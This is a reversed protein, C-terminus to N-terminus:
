KKQNFINTLLNKIQSYDKNKPTLVYAKKDGFYITANELFGNIGADLVIKWGNELNLEKSLYYLKELDEKSLNTLINKQATTYIKWANEFDTFMNLGKIKAALANIVEQQRRMRGFDSEATHRTRIYKITTAGDLHQWGAEISFTIIGVGPQPFAPDYIKEPVFINIGGVLDIIEQIGSLNITIFHKADIGSIKEITERLYYEPNAPYNKLGMKWLANIRSVETSQPLSVLLDRPFSTLAFVRQDPKLSLLMISDTLDPAENRPGAVGLFLIDLRENFNPLTPAPSITSAINEGISNKIIQTSNKNIVFFMGAGIGLALFIFAIYKIFSM